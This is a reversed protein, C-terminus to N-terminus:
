CANYHAVLCRQPPELEVNIVRAKHWIRNTYDLDVEQPKPEGGEIQNHAIIIKKVSYHLSVKFLDFANAVSIRELGLAAIYACTAYGQDDVALVWLHEKDHFFEGEYRLLTTFIRYADEIKEIKVRKQESSTISIMKM